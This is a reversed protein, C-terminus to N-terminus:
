AVTGTRAELATICLDRYRLMAKPSSSIPNIV